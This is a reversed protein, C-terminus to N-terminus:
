DDKTEATFPKDLWESKPDGTDEGDYAFTVGDPGVRLIKARPDLSSVLDQAERIQKPTPMSPAAPRSM